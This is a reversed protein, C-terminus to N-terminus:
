NWGKRSDVSPTPGPPRRRHTAQELAYAIALLQPETFPRGLFEVGVPMGDDAFGAPVTIAPPGTAASAAGNGGSQPEGIKVATRRLTPYVLASVQEDDMLRVLAARQGDHKAVTARYEDTDTSPADRKFTPELAPIVLHRDVVEDHTRVPAKPTRRLYDNLNSAFEHRIISVGDGDSPVEASTVRITKAGHQEMAEIATRVVSGVRQDEPADGFLREVVGLRAGRLADANLSATYTSPIRGAARSTVPDAPDAGVTADLVIAADTVTKALPGGVDQSLALPVIGSRSSLGLTPRVGVLSNHASPYRISGCTDTGM